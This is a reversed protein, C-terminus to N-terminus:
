DLSGQFGTPVYHFFISTSTHGDALAERSHPIERGRYVLGDGLGQFINVVSDNTHLQLSWPTECTPEPSYDLALTVSFECQERDTHKELVAGSQYAGTYVYSPKVPQRVIAAMMPTLHHHFFRAANENHAVYRRSTQADGLRLAGLRILKRYHRRLAALHLPNMLTSVPCYGRAQFINGLETVTQERRTTSRTPQTLIGALKLVTKQSWPLERPQMKGELLESLVPLFTAGLWFPELLETVPSRVWAIEDKSDFHDLLGPDIAGEPLHDGRTLFIGSNVTLLTEEDVKYQNFYRQPVLHDPYDDLYCAFRLPLVRCPDRM